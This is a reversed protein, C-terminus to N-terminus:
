SEPAVSAESSAVSIETIEGPQAAVSPERLGDEQAQPTDKFTLQSSKEYKLNNSITSKHIKLKNTGRISFIFFALIFM